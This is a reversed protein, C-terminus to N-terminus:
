RHDGWRTEVGQTRRLAELLSEWAERAGEPVKLAHVADRRPAWYWLAGSACIVWAILVPLPVGLRWAVSMTIMLWIPGMASGIVVARWSVMWDRSERQQDLAIAGVVGWWLSLAGARAWRLRRASGAHFVRMQDRSAGGRVLVYRRLADALMAHEAPRACIQRIHRDMALPEAGHLCELAPMLGDILERTQEQRVHGVLEQLSREMARTMARVPEPQQAFIGADLPAGVRVIVGRGPRARDLYYLGVPTVAADLAGAAWAGLAIRAAGTHCPHVRREHRARMGEPFIAVWAACSLLGTAHDLGGVGREAPIAGGARLVSSTRPHAFLRPAILYHLTRPTLSAVMLVDMFSSPHNIAVVQADREPLEGELWVSGQYWRAVHTLPARALRYLWTM